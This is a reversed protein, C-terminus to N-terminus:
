NALNIFTTWGQSMKLIGQFSVDSFNGLRLHFSTMGEKKGVRWTLFSSNKLRVGQKRHERCSRLLSGRSGTNGAPGWGRDEAELTGQPVEVALTRQRVEVALRAALTPQRVEVAIMQSCHVEVLLLIDSYIGSLSYSSIGSSIDSLYALFFTPLYTLFFTLLNTLFFTLFRTLLGTLSFALLFTLFFDSLYALFCTTLFTLVVLEM